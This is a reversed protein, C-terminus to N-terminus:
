LMSDLRKKQSGLEDTLGDIQKVQCWRDVVKANWVFSENDARNQIQKSLQPVTEPGGNKFFRMRNEM